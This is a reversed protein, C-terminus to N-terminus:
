IPRTQDRRSELCHVSAFDVKSAVVMYFIVFLSRICTQFRYHHPNKRMIVTIM